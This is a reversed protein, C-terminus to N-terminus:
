ARHLLLVRGVRGFPDRGPDARVPDSGVAVPHVFHVLVAPRQLGFGFVVGTDNMM